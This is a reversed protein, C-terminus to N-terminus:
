DGKPEDPEKNDRTKEALQARGVNPSQECREHLPWAASKGEGSQERPGGAVEFLADGRGPGSAFVCTRRSSRRDGM